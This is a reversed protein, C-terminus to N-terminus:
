GKDEYFRGLMKSSEVENYIMSTKNSNIVKELKDIDISGDKNTVKELETSILEKEDKSLQSIDGSNQKLKELTKLRKLQEENAEKLLKLILDEELLGLHIAENVHEEILNHMSLTLNSEKTNYSERLSISSNFNSDIKITTDLENDINKPKNYDQRNYRVIVSDNEHIKVYSKDIYEDVRGAGVMGHGAFENRTNKYESENLLGDNNSDAKLFERKYAIDGFWGGVFAEAKNDLRTIGDKREYFDNEGFHSKLTNITDKQLSLVVYKDNTPDKFAVLLSNEAKQTSSYSINSTKDTKSNDSSPIIEESLEKTTRDVINVSVARFATGHMNTQINSDLKM